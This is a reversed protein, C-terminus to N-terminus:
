IGELYINCIDTTKNTIVKVKKTINDYSILAGSDTCKSLTENLVYSRDSSLEKVEVEDVYLIIKIDPIMEDFYISCKNKTTSKIKYKHTKYDYGFSIIGDNNSCDYRVTYNYNSDSTPTTSASSYRGNDNKVLINTQIDYLNGDFYLYCHLPKNSTVIVIGEVYEIVNEVINDYNDVCYSNTINLSYKDPDPFLEGDTYEEYEDNENLIYMGFQKRNVQKKEEFNEINKHSGIKSIIFTLFLTLFLFLIISKKRYKGNM